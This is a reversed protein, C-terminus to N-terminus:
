VGLVGDGGVVIGNPRHPEQGALDGVGGVLARLLIGAGNGLLLRLFVELRLRVLAVGKLRLIVVGRELRLLAGSGLSRRRGLGLLLRNGFRRCDGATHPRRALFDALLNRIALTSGTNLCSTLKGHGSLHRRRGILSSDTHIRVGLLSVDSRWYGYRSSPPCITDVSSMLRSRSSVPAPMMSALRAKCSALPSKSFAFLSKSCHPAAFAWFRAPRAVAWPMTSEYM